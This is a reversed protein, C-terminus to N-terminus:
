KQYIIISITYGPLFNKNKFNTKEEWKTKKRTWCKKWKKLVEKKKMKLIKNKRIKQFLYSLFFHFFSYTWFVLYFFLDLIPSLVFRSKFFFFFLNQFILFFALDFCSNRDCFYIKDLSFFFTILGFRQKWQVLINQELIILLNSCYM